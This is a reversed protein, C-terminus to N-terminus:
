QFIAAFDPFLVLFFIVPGAEALFESISNFIM